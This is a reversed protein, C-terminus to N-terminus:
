SALPSCWFNPGHELDAVRRQRRDTYGLHEIMEDTEGTGVLFVGSEIKSLKAYEVPDNNVRGYASRSPPEPGAAVM